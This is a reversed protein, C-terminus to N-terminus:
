EPAYPEFRELWLDRDILWKGNEQTWIHAFRGAGLVAGTEREIVQYNGHVLAMDVGTISHTVTLVTLPNRITFDEAWFAEIDKRGMVSAGGHLMVRANPAYLAGLAARDHQNYAEAWRQALERITADEAPQQAQAAVAASALFLTVLATHILRWRKM